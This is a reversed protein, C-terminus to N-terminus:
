IDGCNDASIALFSCLLGMFVFKQIGISLVYPTCVFIIQTSKLLSSIYSSMLSCSLPKSM